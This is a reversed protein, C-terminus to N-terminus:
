MHKGYNMVELSEIFSLRAGHHKLCEGFFGILSTFPEDFEHLM